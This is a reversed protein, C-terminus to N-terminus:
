WGRYKYGVDEDSLKFRTMLSETDKDIITAEQNLAQLKSIEKSITEPTSSAIAERMNGIAARIRGLYNYVAQMHAQFITFKHLKYLENVDKQLGEIDDEGSTLVTIYRRIESLRTDNGFEPLSILMSKLVKHIDLANFKRLANIIIPRTYAEAVPLVVEHYFLHRYSLSGELRFQYYPLDNNPIDMEYCISEGPYLVEGRSQEEPTVDVFDLGNMRSYNIKNLFQLDESSRAINESKTVLRNIKFCIQEPDISSQEGGTKGISLGIGIFVPRPESKVPASNAVSIKVKTYQLEDPMGPGKDSPLFETNAMLYGQLTKIPNISETVHELVDVM